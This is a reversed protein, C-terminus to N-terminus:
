QTVAELAAETQRYYTAEFEAPTVYSNDETIEGHLRWHNFWDLYGLAAFDVDDLGRWLGKRHILEWKYLSFSEAMANDLLRRTLRGLRRHRQRGVARLLPHVSVARGQRLSAGARRAGPGSSHPEV